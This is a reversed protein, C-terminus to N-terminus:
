QSALKDLEAILKRLAILLPWRDAPGKALKLKELTTNMEAQIEDFRQKRIDMKKASQGSYM